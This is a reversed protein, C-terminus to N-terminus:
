PQRFILITGSVLFLLDKPLNGAHLLVENPEFVKLWM